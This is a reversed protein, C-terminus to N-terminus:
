FGAASKVKLVMKEGGRQVGLSLVQGVRVDAVAARVEAVIAVKKEGIAELADGVKLGAEAAPSGEFVAAVRLTKDAQELEAGVFGRPTGPPGPKLGAIKALVKMLGGMMDLSATGGDKMKLKELPPPDFALETWVMREKGLDIEIKYKALLTYGMMGHLEVGPLGMANMGEIQFPTEIRTKVNEQSVGGEMELKKIVGFGKESVLGAKKAAETSILMVPCGTDVIFHFPGKGDIKVRVMVHQTKTLKFPVVTPAGAVKPAEQASATGALAGALAAALLSVIAIRVM